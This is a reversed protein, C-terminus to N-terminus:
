ENIDLKGLPYLTVYCDLFRISTTYLDVFITIRVHYMRERERKRKINM